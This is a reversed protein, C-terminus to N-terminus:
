TLILRVKRPVVNAKPPSVKPVKDAPGYFPRSRGALYMSTYPIWLRNKTNCTEVYYCLEKTVTISDDPNGSIGLVLYMYM